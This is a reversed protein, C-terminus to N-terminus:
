STINDYILGKSIEQIQSLSVPYFDWVDVGVNIVNKCTKFLDHVHGCLWISNHIVCSSAPDHNLIYDDVILSTHVSTFGVDIYTFPKLSDHNGLILHKQGPLQTILKYYYRIHESTRLSLDGIFYVIDQPKVVEQYRKIIEKNMKHVSGFPRNCYKIINEHDFHQDATFWINSM